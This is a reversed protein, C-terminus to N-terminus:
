LFNCFYLRQQDRLGTQPRGRVKHSQVRFEPTIMPRM